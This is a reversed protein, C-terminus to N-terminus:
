MVVMKGLCGKLRQTPSTAWACAADNGESRYEILAAKVGLVEGILPALGALHGGGQGSFIQTLADQQGENAREDVYLAVKWKVELMHGPSHAALVANLGDLNVEGFRGHDIHRPLLVTCDGSTSPSLFVCPCALDCNCAECYSGTIEWFTATIGMEM